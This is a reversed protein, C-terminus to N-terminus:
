GILRRARLVRRIRCQILQGIRRDAASEDRNERARHHMKAGCYRSNWLLAAGDQWRRSKAM